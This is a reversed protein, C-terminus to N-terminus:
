VRPTIRGKPVVQLREKDSTDGQRFINLLIGIGAMVAMLASGGYSIFPLPLGTNPLLSTTVGINLVAQLSIFSVIGVGLMTGFRDRSHFAITLGSVAILLFAFVIALTMRLGLEEGIMPFIFDTHAFPMYLMKLRGAGMGIGEVGGSGLAILAMFQQLGVGSRHLEPDLFATLRVMKDPMQFVMMTFAGVAVVSTLALYKWDTGGVFMMVFVVASLIITTGMDVEFLVLVVILGAILGPALWGRLFHKGDKAYHSFWHAVVIVLALKAPESPQLSFLGGINVWRSEENITQGVGPVYCLALLLICIGYIGWVMKQLLHYDVSAMLLCVMCGLVLWMVQRKVDYYLDDSPVDSGFVSTSVLMVVGVGLLFVVAAMLIQASWKSM